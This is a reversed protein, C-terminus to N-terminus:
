RVRSAGAPLEATRLQEIKELLWPAFDTKPIPGGTDGAPGAHTLLTAEITSADMTGLPNAVIADVRKRELKGRAAELMTERPELAFAVFLQDDRKRSAEAAILDPTSELRLTMEGKARKIKGGAGQGPHQDPLPRYDAVAAAMVLVDAAPAHEALLAKLDATTQFRHTRVATHTPEAAHPGLLLTVDWGLGAAADVLAVGLRGSSRNGLYRVDDIPEHTPGATVLLRPPTTRDNPTM